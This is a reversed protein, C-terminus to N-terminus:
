WHTHLHSFLKCPDTGEHPEGVSGGCQEGRGWPTQRGTERGREGKKIDYLKFNRLTQKTKNKLIKNLKLIRTCRRQKWVCWFLVDSGM